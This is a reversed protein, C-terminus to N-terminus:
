PKASDNLKKITSARKEPDQIRAAQELAEPLNPGFSYRTLVSVLFDDSIEARKQLGELQFSAAREKLRDAEAKTSALIAGAEDPIVLRLWAEMKEELLPEPPHRQAQLSAAVIGTALIRKESADLAQDQFIPHLLDLYESRWPHFQQALHNWLIERSKGSEIEEIFPRYRRPASLARPRDRLILPSMSQAVLVEREPAPFTNLYLRALPSGDLILNEVLKARLSGLNGDQRMAGGQALPPLAQKRPPNLQSDAELDEFWALADEPDKHIWAEFAPYIESNTLLTAIAPHDRIGSILSTVALAPDKEGLTAVLDNLLDGKWDREMPTTGAKHLLESLTDSSMAALKDVFPKRLGPVTKSSQCEEALVLIDTSESIVPVGGSSTRAIPSGSRTNPQTPILRVLEANEREARSIAIQQLALPISLLLLSCPIVVKSHTTLMIAITSTTSAGSSATIATATAGTLLGTPAAKAFETTLGTGLLTASVAFGKSRMLRSMKELARVSQKQVAASSKGLLGAIKPFSLNDFFHLLLVRRDSESLADLAIDLHPLAQRWAENGTPDTTTAVMVEQLQSRRQHSSESRMAKSSEFLTARHLWGPLRDPHAALSGAKKALACLVNQSIEEALSRNGTRRLATHFILGLYRKALQQFAAEDRHRAFAKLLDADPFKM